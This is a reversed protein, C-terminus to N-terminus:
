ENKQRKELQADIEETQEMHVDYLKDSLRLMNTRVVEADKRTFPLGAMDFYPKFTVYTADIPDRKHFPKLMASFFRKWGKLPNKRAEVIGDHIKQLEEETLNDVPHKGPKRMDM